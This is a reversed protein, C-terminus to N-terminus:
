RRRFRSALPLGAYQISSPQRRGRLLLIMALVLMLVLPGHQWLARTATSWMPTCFAFIGASALAIPVSSFQQYILWFFLVAAIAGYISAVRHEFKDPITEAVSQKFDRDWWAAAAVIPVTLLSTGMPYSTYYRDGYQLISYREYKELVPLYKRLDGGDGEALSMSTHISWRSDLSTRVVSLVYVALFTAFLALSLVIGRACSM